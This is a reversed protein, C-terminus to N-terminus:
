YVAMPVSQKFPFFDVFFFFHSNFLSISFSDQQTVESIHLSQNKKHSRGYPNKLLYITSLCSHVDRM